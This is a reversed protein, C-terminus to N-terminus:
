QSSRDRARWGVAREGDERGGGSNDLIAKMLLEYPISELCATDPAEVALEWDQSM